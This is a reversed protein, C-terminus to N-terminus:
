RGSQPKKGSCHVWIPLLVPEITSILSAELARVHRIGKSFLVVLGLQFVGLLVLGVWGEGPVSSAFPAFVVATLTALLVSDAPSGDKQKRLLV